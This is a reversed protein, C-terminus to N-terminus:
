KDAILYRMGHEDAMLVRLHGPLQVLERRVTRIDKVMVEVTPWLALAFILCASAAASSWALRHAFSMRPRAALVPRLQSRVNQPFQEWYEDSRTPLPVAKLRSELEFDNM